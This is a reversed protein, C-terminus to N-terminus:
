WYPVFWLRKDEWERWVRMTRMTTGTIGLWSKHFLVWHPRVAKSPWRRVCFTEVWESLISTLGTTICCCIIHYLYKYIFKRLLYDIWLITSGGGRGLYGCLFEVGWVYEIINITSHFSCRGRRGMRMRIRAPSQTWSSLYTYGDIHLIM